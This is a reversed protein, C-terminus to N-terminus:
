KTEEKTTFREVLATIAAALPATDVHLTINFTPAIPAPTTTM